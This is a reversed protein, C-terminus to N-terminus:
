PLQAFHEISTIHRGPGHRGPDALHLVIFVLVLVLAVLGFVKVWRPISATSGHDPRAHTQSM